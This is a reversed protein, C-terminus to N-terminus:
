NALFVIKSGELSTQWLFIGHSWVELKWFEPLISNGISEHKKWAFDLWFPMKAIPTYFVKAWANIWEPSLISEFLVDPIKFVGSPNKQAFIAEPWNWFIACVDKVCAMVQQFCLLASCGLCMPARYPVAQKNLIIVSYGQFVQKALFHGCVVQRVRLGIDALKNFLVFWPVAWEILSIM